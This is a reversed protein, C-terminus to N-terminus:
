KRCFYMNQIKQYIEGQIFQSQFVVNSPMTSGNEMLDIAVQVARDCPDKKISGNPVCSYQGSQYIVERISDPFLDHEVRNLVVSGVGYMMEDSCWDSGAEATILRALLETEADVEKVVEFLEDYRAFVNTQFILIFLLTTWILRSRM